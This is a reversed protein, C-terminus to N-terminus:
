SSRTSWNTSLGTHGTIELVANPSGAAAAVWSAETALARKPVPEFPEVALRGADRDLEWVGVIRGGLTVVPSIWGATRSVKPKVAKPLIAEVDRGPALVYQDFGPLLRVVDTPRQKSLSPVDEALAVSPRGELSVSVLEDAIAAFWPRVHPARLRAFWAAFEEITAPGHASLYTRVVRSGGEVPDLSRWGAVWTDPRTFTVRSGDPPGQCLLGQFAAPKLLEAWGSSLRGAHKAAKARRVVEAGLEERSLVRGELAEGIAATIREVEKATVGFYREWAKARWPQVTSLAAAYAPAEDAPLLHLTGRMAWTKILTRDRWLAREVAAPRPARRRVAVALEASSAVQAQVGGIARAVAAADRSGRPELLQRRLRWALVQPWTLRLGSNRFTVRAAM